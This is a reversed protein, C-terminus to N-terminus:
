PLGCTGMILVTATTTAAATAVAYLTTVSEPPTVATGVAVRVWTDNTPATNAANSLVLMDGKTVTAVPLFAYYGGTTFWAYPTATGVSANIAVGAASHIAAHSVAVNTLASGVTDSVTTRAVSNWYVPVGVAYGAQLNATNAYVFSVQNGSVDQVFIKSGPNNQATADAVTALLGSLGSTDLFQRTLIRHVYSNAM